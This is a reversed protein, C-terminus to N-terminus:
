RTIWFGIIGVLIIYILCPIIVGGLVKREMNKLGIAAEAVIIDALAIMNGASAGVLALALIKDVSLGLDRASVALFNGFMLNSVTASGTLFSGFAGVIPAWFPLMVNRVHVAMFDIM